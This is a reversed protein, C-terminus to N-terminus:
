DSTWKHGLLIFPLATTFYTIDYASGFLHFDGSDYMRHVLAVGFFLLLMWGTNRFYAKRSKQGQLALIICLPIYLIFDSLHGQGTQLAWPSHDTGFFLAPDWLVFPLFIGTLTLVFVVPMLLQQRRGIYPLRPLLLLAFPILAIVRTATLFALGMAMYAGYRKIDVTHAYKWFVTAVTATLFMNGLLDSRVLAEYWVAPSVALLFAVTAATRGGEVKYLVYLFLALTAFFSLGVNGMLHFPIHLLMWVPFPSAYGGLHTMAAYPYRGQLLYSIPGSLASWRDVQLDLPDILYQGLLLLLFVTSAGLVLTRFQWRSLVPRSLLVGVLVSASLVYVLTLLSAGYRDPLLRIGYKAIFLANILVYALLVFGKSEKLQRGLRSLGLVSLISIGMFPLLFGVPSANLYPLLPIHCIYLELSYKGALSLPSYLKPRVLLSCAILASFGWTLRFPCQLYNYALTGKLNHVTPFLKLAFLCLGCLFLILSWLLWRKTPMDPIRHKYQSILVGFLFSFAQESELHLGGTRSNLCCVAAVTMFAIAWKGCFRMAFWYVLYCKLIHFVFWFTPKQYTLEDCLEKLSGDPSILHFLVALVITPVAVRTLRKHWFGKMGNTRCSEHIGYGGLILFIAVFLGGWFNVFANKSFALIIHFLFIGLASIGRLVDTRERSLLQQITM